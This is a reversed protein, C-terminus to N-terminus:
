GVVNRASGFPTSYAPAARPSDAPERGEDFRVPPNGADPKGLVYTAFSDAGRARGLLRGFNINDSCVNTPSSFDLPPLTPLLQSM